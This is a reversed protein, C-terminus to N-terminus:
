DQGAVIELRRFFSQFGLAQWFAQGVPNSELVDLTVRTGPPVRERLFLAFGARGLGVGRWTRDICFQRVHIAAGDPEPAHAIYGVVRGDLELIEQRWDGSDLWGRHRALLQEYSLRARHGEDALLQGNLEALVPLDAAVARRIALTGHFPQAPM